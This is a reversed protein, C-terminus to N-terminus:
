SRESEVGITGWGDHPTSELIIHRVKVLHSRLYKYEKFKNQLRGVVIGPHVGVRSAFNLVRQESFYYPQVRAVYDELARTTVGFDSAAHNAVREEGSVELGDLDEDIIVTEEKGHGQLVHELEHRLVFWFNDIRDLRSSMAVAPGGSLWFCAGDIKSGPLAEVIVFRVGCDSLIRTVRRAEEPASMLAALQPLAKRLAEASYHKCPLGDALRQAAFLWARQLSTLETSSKKAAHHFSIEDNLSSVGFFAAFRSELVEISGSGDIWNRRIMERAPFLEYLRAKRAVQDGPPKVKALQFQTELNMWVEASTGLAQGLQVATEPTIARKGLVIENIVKTPRGIIEALEIQSWGRAELEEQLFEGPAAVDSYLTM